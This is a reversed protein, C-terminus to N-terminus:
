NKNIFKLIKNPKLSFHIIKKNNIIKFNNNLQTIIKRIEEISLNDKKMNIFEEM